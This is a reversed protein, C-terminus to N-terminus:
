LWHTLESVAQQMVAYLERYADLGHGIPDDIDKELDAPLFKKLHFLRGDVTPEMKIIRDYQGDEMVFIMDSSLLDEHSLRQSVFGKIEVDEKERIVQLVGSSAQGGPYAAIGRSIVEYRQAAYPTLKNIYIQTLFQAMPSRCTNGTCVFLIRKRTFTAIIKTESIAGERLLKFPYFTLDIVTSAKGYKCPGSDLIM